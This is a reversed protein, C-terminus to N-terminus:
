KLSSKDEWLTKQPVNTERQEAQSPFMIPLPDGDAAPPFAPPGPGFEPGPSGRGEPHKTVPCRPLPLLSKCPKAGSFSDPITFERQQPAGGDRWHGGGGLEPARRDWIRGGARGTNRGAQPAGSTDNTSGRGRWASDGPHAPFVAPRPAGSGPEAAKGAGMAWPILQGPVEAGSAGKRAPVRCFCGRGLGVERGLELRALAM